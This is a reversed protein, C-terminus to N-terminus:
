NVGVDILEVPSVTGSLSFLQDPAAADIGCTAGRAAFAACPPGFGGGPNRWAAPSNSTTTRDGWGWQGGPTFNMNAIVSVWYTGATLACAPALTLTFNGAADAPVVAPYDCGVVAAGPLGAANAYFTVHASAAPGTGNFYLGDVFVTDISWGAAPVVFDDALENDFADNAAEFNQSNTAQAGPADLQSYLLVKGPIHGTGHAKGALVRGSMEPRNAAWAGGAMVIVVVLASVVWKIKSM